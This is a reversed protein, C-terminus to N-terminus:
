RTVMAVWGVRFSLWFYYEEKYLVGEGLEPPKQNRNQKKNKTKNKTKNQKTKNSDFWWMM